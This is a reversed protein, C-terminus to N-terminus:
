LAARVWADEAAYDFADPGNARLFAPYATSWDRAGITDVIRKVMAPLSDAYTAVQRYGLQAVAESMDAVIPEPVSWPTDGLASAGPILFETPHHDLFANTIHAIESTTLADDDVANLVRRGPSRAALRVLEAITRSNSRHFRSQGGWNLIQVPRRDLARKIFWLERPHVSAPGYIAGPRLVTVPIRMDDALLVDEMAVKRTSYTTDGPATRSQGEAIPIPLVPFDDAGTAEDLTRGRSDCYVSVSSLVVASGIRDAARGLQHANDHTYAVCDVLLDVGAGLAASFSEDIQRDVLVGEVGDPWSHQSRSGARVHWGDRLLAPIVAEGVQGSGGLVFAIKDM